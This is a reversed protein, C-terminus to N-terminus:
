YAVAKILYIHANSIFFVFLAFLNNITGMLPLSVQSMPDFVESVGFGMQTSFFEGAMQFAAFLFQLGVGILFGIFAQELIALFYFQHIWDRAEPTIKVVPVLLLAAFFAISARYFYSLTQGSFFPAVSMMALFRALILVAVEFQKSFFEM